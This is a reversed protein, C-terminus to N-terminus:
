RAAGGAGAAAGGEGDVRVEYLLRVAGGQADDTGICDLRARVRAMVAAAGVAAAGGDGQGRGEVDDCGVEM